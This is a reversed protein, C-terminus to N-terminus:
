FTYRASVFYRRGTYEINTVRERIDAFQLSRENTINIIEASISLKENVNYSSSFDLQGFDDTHEPIGSSGILGTRALLFSDRWNYSLRGQFTGDDYFATINFSNEALGELSAPEAVNQVGITNDEGEDSDVYTYNAQIGTNELLGPLGDFNVLAALELGSVTGGPLNQNTNLVGILDTGDLEAILAPDIAVEPDNFTSTTTLTSIFDSIDKHFLAVSYSNGNEAYYEFSLDYSRVEFPTLGVNGGTQVVVGGEEISLARDVGLFELPPRTITEGAGGRIIFGNRFDLKFNASPLFNDFSNGGELDQPSTSIVDARLEAAGPESTLVISLPTQGFGVSDIDTDSYRVGFDASWDFATAEGAFDLQGYISFIDEDITSSRSPVFPLNFPDGTIGNAQRVAFIADIYAGIDPIGLLATPFSGSEGSLFGTIASAQFLGDPLDETGGCPSCGSDVDTFNDFFRRDKTRSSYETGVRLTRVVGADFEYKGDIKLETVEDEFEANNGGNWHTRVASPDNLDITTDFGIIDGAGVAALNTISYSLDDGTIQPVFESDFPNSEAESYALDANLSLRETLQWDLNWGVAFIQQDESLNEFIGDINTGSVTASVLTGNDNVVVDSYDGSQTPLQFGTSINQRELDVYLADFVLEVNDSPQFQITGSLALREREEEESAFKVRRPHLIGFGDPVVTGDEFLANGQLNSVALSEGYRLGQFRDIRTTAEEYSFGVLVGVTDDLYTNSVLGSFRPTAEDSQDEYRTGVSFTSNLGVSDLPRASRLNVYGGLSGDPLSAQSTKYVDAGGIVESPLVQFDFARDGDAAALTRGNLRVANFRPGFGRITVGDGVGNTRSISVGTIRQLSEAVNQDPFKGIDEAVISERIGDADRKLDNARDLSNRIGKVVVEEIEAVEQGSVGASFSSAAVATIVATAIKNLKQMVEIGRSPDKAFVISIHGNDRVMVEYGTGTLLHKLANEVTYEGSLANATKSEMAEFPFLLTIDAIDAIHRISHAATQRPISFHFIKKTILENTASASSTMVLGIVLIKVVFLSKFVSERGEESVPNNGAHLTLRTAFKFLGSKKIM